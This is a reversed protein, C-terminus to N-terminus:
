GRERGSKILVATEYLQVVTLNKKKIMIQM